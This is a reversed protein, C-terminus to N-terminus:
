PKGTEDKGTPRRKPAAKKRPSAATSSRTATKRATGRPKPKSPEPAAEPEPEPPAAAAGNAFPPVADDAPREQRLAGGFMRSLREHRSELTKLEQDLSAMTRPLGVDEEALFVRLVKAFSAVLSQVALRGRWGKPTLGAAALMWAQSRLAAANLTLALAPDRRASRMLSKLAARYPRLADLRTMLVDFLRDRPSEDAMDSMDAALVIGDVRRSFAELVAHRTAFLRNLEALSVGAARAIDVVTVEAFPREAVLAMTADIITDKM